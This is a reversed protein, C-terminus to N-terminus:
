LINTNSQSIRTYRPAIKALCKRVFQIPLVVLVGQNCVGMQTNESRGQSIDIGDTVAGGDLIVYGVVDDGEEACDGPLLAFVGLFEVKGESFPAFDGVADLLAEGLGGGMEATEVFEKFLVVFVLGAGQVEAFERFEEM